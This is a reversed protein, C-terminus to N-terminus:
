LTICTSVMTIYIGQNIIIEKRKSSPHGLLLDIKEETILRVTEGATQSMDNEFCTTVRFCFYAVKLFIYCADTKTEKATVNIM